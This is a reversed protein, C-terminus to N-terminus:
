LTLSPLSSSRYVNLYHNTDNKEMPKLGIIIRRYTEDERRKISIYHTMFNVCGDAGLVLKATEFLSPISRM